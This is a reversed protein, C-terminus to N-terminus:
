SEIGNEMRARSDKPFGCFPKKEKRNECRKSKRSFVTEMRKPIGFFTDIDHKIRLFSMNESLFYM